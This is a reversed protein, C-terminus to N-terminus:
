AMRLSTNSKVGSARITSALEGAKCLEVQAGTKLPPHRDSVLVVRAHSRAGRLGLLGSLAERSLAYIDIVLLDIQDPYRRMIAHATHMSDLCNV